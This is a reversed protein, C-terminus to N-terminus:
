RPWWRRASPAAPPRDVGLWPPEFVRGGVGPCARSTAPSRERKVFRRSGQSLRGSPMGFSLPFMIRLSPKADAPAHTAKQIHAPGGRPGAGGGGGAGRVGWSPPRGGGGGGFVMNEPRPGLTVATFAVGQPKLGEEGASRSMKSVLGLPWLTTSMDSTG